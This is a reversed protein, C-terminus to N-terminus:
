CQYMAFVNWPSLESDAELWGSRPLGVVVAEAAAVVALFDLRLRVVVAAAVAVAALFDLRLRVVVAAAAVELALSLLSHWVVEAVGVVGLTLTARRCPCIQHEAVGEVGGSARLSLM